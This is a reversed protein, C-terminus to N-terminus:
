FGGRGSKEGLKGCHEQPWVGTYYSTRTAVSSVVTPDLSAIEIVCLYIPLM